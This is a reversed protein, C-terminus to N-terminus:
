PKKKPGPKQNSLASENQKLAINFLLFATLAMIGLIYFDFILKMDAFKDYM